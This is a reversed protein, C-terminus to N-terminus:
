HNNRLQHWVLFELLRCHTVTVATRALQLVFQRVETEANRMDRHFSLYMERISVPRGAVARYYDGVKRDFMPILGPRKKHLTKTATSIDVRPIADLHSVVDILPHLWTEATPDNVDLLDLDAPIQALAAEVAARSDFIASATNGSIRSNVMTQLVIEEVRLLSDQRVPVADFYCYNQRMYELAANFDAVRLGSLLRM